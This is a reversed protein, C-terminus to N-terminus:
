YRLIFYIDNDLLNDNVIMNITTKCNKRKFDYEIFHMYPPFLLFVSLIVVNLIKNKIMCETYQM